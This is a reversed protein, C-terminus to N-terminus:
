GPKGQDVALDTVLVVVVHALAQLEDQAAAVDAVPEDEVLKALVDVGVEEPSFRMLKFDCHFLATINQVLM